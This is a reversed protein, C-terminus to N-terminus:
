VYNIDASIANRYKEKIGKLSVLDVKLGLMEELDRALIFYNSGIKANIDVIIDVDSNESQENRAYSGFIGISVLPYKDFLYEKKSAIIDKIEQLTKM